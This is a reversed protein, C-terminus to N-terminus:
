PAPPPVLGHLGELRERRRDAGHEEREGRGARHRCQRRRRLVLLSRTALRLRGDTVLLSWTSLHVGGGAVLLSGAPRHVGGGAVLLSGAAVLRRGDRDAGPAERGPPSWNGCARAPLMPEM